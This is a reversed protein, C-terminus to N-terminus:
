ERVIGPLLVRHQPLDAVIVFQAQNQSPAYSETGAFAVTMRYAGPPENAEISCFANGEEDTIAQCSKSGLGITLTAGSVPQPPKASMDTLSAQLEVTSSVVASAPALNLGAYTVHKGATWTVVAPQSFITTSLPIASAVVGDIGTYVGTATFVASGDLGACVLQVQPNAGIVAFDV